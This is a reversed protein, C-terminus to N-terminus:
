NADGMNLNREWQGDRVHDFVDLLFMRLMKMEQKFSRVRLSRTFYPPWDSKSEGANQGPPLSSSELEASELHRAM